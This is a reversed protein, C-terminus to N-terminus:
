RKSASVDCNGGFNWIFNKHTKRKGLCCASIHSANFGHRGCEAMSHWYKIFNGNLDRQIVPKGHMNRKALGAKLNHHGYNLNEKHTLWELNNANNNLKNEDKHNVEKLVTKGKVFYTAVLRHVLFEHCKGNNCLIVEEYGRNNLHQKLIKNTIKNKILGTNSVQYNPYDNITIWKKNM